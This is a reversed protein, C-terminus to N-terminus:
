VGSRPDLLTALACEERSEVDAFHLRSDEGRFYRRAETLLQTRFRTVGVRPLRELKYFLVKVYHILQFQSYILLTKYLLSYSM